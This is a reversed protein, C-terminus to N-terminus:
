MRVVLAVLVAVMRYGLVLTMYYMMLSSYYEMIIANVPYSVFWQGLTARPNVITNFNFVCYIMFVSFVIKYNYDSTHERKVCNVQRVLPPPINLREM